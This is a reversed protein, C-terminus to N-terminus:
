KHALDHCTLRLLFLLFLFRLIVDIDPLFLGSSLFLLLYILKSGDALPVADLHVMHRQTSTNDVLIYGLM